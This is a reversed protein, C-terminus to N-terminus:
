FSGEVIFLKWLLDITAAPRRRKKDTVLISGNEGCADDDTDKDNDVVRRKDDVPMSTVNFRRIGVVIVQHSKM